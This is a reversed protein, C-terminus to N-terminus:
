NKLLMPMSRLRTGTASFIANGIAPAVACMPTEGAGFSPQDKRNILVAEIAPADSFRPVRYRAFSPNLIRGNEAEISEFLAGGLAMLAGGEIQNKLHNPNIVAGCDYATVIRVVKVDKGHLAVEACTAVYAGKEFGGAIGFGHGGAPKRRGWGFSEAAALFAARLRADKLNRLRFELADMGLAVAVEDLHTERAFFNAVAALARYSGQRLPARGPHFQIRQHPAEYPMSIANTGSNYNHLEWATLAGDKRTGSCIEILGAPRFWAWTFEEERTWVLKVPRGAAKALRAAEIAAECRSKGCFGSGVDPVIVRVREKPLHFLRALEDRMGFPSTTGTWVTLRGDVLEAVAARPELPAHAIFALTYAAELKRDAAALGEAIVGATHQSVGPSCQAKLSALFARTSQQPTHEWEARLADVAAQAAHSDPATVGAFDGDRIVQVGPLSRAKSADLSVLKSQFAPPRLVKGHLMGPRSFDSPFVHRGTVFERAGFKPASAGAITWDTPPRLPVDARVTRLLRRGEALEGFSLSRGGAAEVIRGAELSLLRPEVNWKKAALDRLLERAAAAAQRLQPAMFPTTRSSFTGPDYPTLATDGMIMRLRDIPVRLEEAVAQALSTRINQGMECKGCFVSVLGEANIHIWAGIEQPLAPEEAVLGVAVGCGLAAFFDRRRMM